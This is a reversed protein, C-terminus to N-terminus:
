EHLRVILICYPFSYNQMISQQLLFITNFSEFCMFIQQSRKLQRHNINARFLPSMFSTHSHFVPIFQRKSNNPYFGQLAHKGVKNYSGSDDDYGGNQSGGPEGHIKCADLGLYWIKSYKEIEVKEYETLKHGYLHLAEAFVFTSNLGLDKFVSM